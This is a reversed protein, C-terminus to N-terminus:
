LSQLLSGCRCGNYFELFLTKLSGSKKDEKKDERRKVQRIKRMTRITKRRTTRKSAGGANSPLKV